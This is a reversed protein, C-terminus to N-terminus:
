REKYFCYDHKGFRIWSGKFKVSKDKIKKVKKGSQDILYM